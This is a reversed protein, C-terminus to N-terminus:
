AVSTLPERMTPFSGIGVMKGWGTGGGLGGRQAIDYVAQADPPEPTKEPNYNPDKPDRAQNMNYPPKVRFTVVEPSYPSGRLASSATNRCSNQSRYNRLIQQLYEVDQLSLTLM